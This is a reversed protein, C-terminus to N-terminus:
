LKTLTRIKHGISKCMVLKVNEPLEDGKELGLSSAVFGGGFARLVDACVTQASTWGIADYVGAFEGASKLASVIKAAADADKHDFVETAGLSKVLDHNHASATAIVKVGSAVALQVALAGVSSSAGFVLISKGTPQPKTSPYPLHLFEKMHLGSSATSIALPLVSADKFSLSDPIKSTLATFAVSYLQFAGHDPKKTVLYICHRECRSLGATTNFVHM